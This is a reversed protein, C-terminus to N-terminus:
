RFEYFLNILAGIGISTTGNVLAVTTRNSDSPRWIAQAFSGAYAGAIRPIALPHSGDPMQDTVAGWVAWGVRRMTSGCHCRRYDLPRQLAAALAETVGEQIVFEGVNSAARKGYGSWGTGWEPPEKRAQDLGAFALGEATGYVLDRGFRTWRSASDSGVRWQAQASTAALALAVLAVATRQM